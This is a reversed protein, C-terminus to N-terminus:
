PVMFDFGLNKAVNSSDVTRIEFQTKPSCGNFAEESVVQVTDGNAVAIDSWDPTALAASNTTNTGNSTAICYLGTGVRSVSAINFGKVLNGASYVVAWAKASGPAGQAGQPGAPGAPGAPGRKGRKGRPGKVLKSTTAEGEGTVLQTAAYGTGSMAVFLAICAIVMAPSPLSRKVMFGGINPLLPLEAGEMRRDGRM